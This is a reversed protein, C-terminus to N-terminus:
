GRGGGDACQLVAPVGGYEDEHDPEGSRHLQEAGERGAGRVEAQLAQRGEPQAETGAQPGARRGGSEARSGPAGEGGPDGGAPGRAAQTRGAARRRSSGRWLARGGSRGGGRSEGGAGPDEGEAGPDGGGPSAGGDGDPRLEDGQAQEREGSGEDRGGIGQWARGVGLGARAVGGRRVGGPFGWSPAQPVRVADPAEPLEGRGADSVRRGGGAEEGDEAVLLHGDCVCLDAGQGDDASRVALQAAWGWPVAGPVREPGGRGGPRECPAGFSRGVGVGSSGSAADSDSGSRVSSVDNGNVGRACGCVKWM